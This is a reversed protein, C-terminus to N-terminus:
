CLTTLSQILTSQVKKRAYDSVALCFYELMYMCKTNTLYLYYAKINRVLSSYHSLILTIIDIQLLINYSIFTTM